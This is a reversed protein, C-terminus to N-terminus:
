SFEMGVGMDEVNTFLCVNNAFLINYLGSVYLYILHGAKLVSLFVKLVVLMM